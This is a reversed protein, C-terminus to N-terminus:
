CNEGEPEPRRPQELERNIRAANDVDIRRQEEKESLVRAQQQRLSQMAESQRLDAPIERRSDNDIARQAERASEAEQQSRYPAQETGQAANLEHAANAKAAQETEREAEREIRGRINQLRLEQEAPTPRAAADTAGTTPKEPDAEARRPREVKGDKVAESEAVRARDPEMEARLERIRDQLEPNTVKYGHEAALRVVTERYADSGSISITDWKESAVKLAARVSEVNNWDRVELNKGQDIFALTQLAGTADHRHYHVEDGKREHTIIPGLGQKAEPRVYRGGFIEASQRELSAQAAIAEDAKDLLRKSQREFQVRAQDDPLLAGIQALTEAMGDRAATMTEATRMSLTEQSLNVQRTPSLAGEARRQFYLVAADSAPKLVKSEASIARPVVFLEGPRSRSPTLERLRSAPVDVYIMRAAGGTKGFSAALAMNVAFLAGRRREGDDLRYLRLVGPAPPPMTWCSADAAVSSWQRAAEQARRRGEERTPSFIEHNQVREIRRRVNPPAIGREVMKVDKLKYAPAHAQDFRRVAEMPIHRQRAEEALTARWRNFDQIGPHLKERALNTLWVAAHVHIHQRNTHMVFLYERGPFEKAFTARAADMFAAKDTGPKASLIVHAFDRPANSRMAPKWSKAIELAPNFGKPKPRDSNSPKKAFLRDAAAQLTLGSETEASFQGARTLAALRTTAGEVGHAWQIDSFEVERGFAREVKTFFLDESKANAFIRELKGNAARRSGAAVAVFHVRTGEEGSEMRWVYKHGPLATALATRAEEEGVCGSFTMTVSFVDNSPARDDDRWHSALDAIAEKGTVLSGDERELSLEGNHSQYNLLSGARGAGSGYSALKVVAAQAGDALGKKAAVASRPASAGADPAGRSGIPPAAIPSAAGPLGARGGKAAATKRMAWEEEALTRPEPSPASPGSYPLASPPIATPSTPRRSSFALAQTMGESDVAELLAQREAFDKQGRLRSLRGALPGLDFVSLSIV